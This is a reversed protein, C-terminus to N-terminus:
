YDSHQQQVVSVSIYARESDWFLFSSTSLKERKTGETEQKVRTYGM